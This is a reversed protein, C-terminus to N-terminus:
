ATREQSDSCSSELFQREDPSTWRHDLQTSDSSARSPACHVGFSVCRFVNSGSVNVRIPASVQLNTSNGPFGSADANVPVVPVVSTLTTEDNCNDTFAHPTTSPLGAPAGNYSIYANATGLGNNENRPACSTQPITRLWYHSVPQDATILVDYRQGIAIGITQTTYPQVPVFDTQIVTMNHGDLSVRFFSQLLPVPFDAIPQLFSCRIVCTSAPTSLACVTPRERLSSSTTASAKPRTQPTSMPAALSSTRLPLLVLASRPTHLKSHPRQGSGIASRSPVSILTMSQTLPLYSSVLGFKDSSHCVEAAAPGNIQM